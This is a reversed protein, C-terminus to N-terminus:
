NVAPRDEIVDLLETRRAALEETSMAIVRRHLEVAAVDDPTITGLLAHPIAFNNVNVAAINKLEGTIQALLQFCGRM